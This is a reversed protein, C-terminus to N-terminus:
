TGKLINLCKNLVDENNILIISLRKRARTVIQFLMKTPHYYPNQDYGKTGLKGSENYYFHEDLVAIVNDYEQGIVKHATDNYWSQYRDYPYRQYMSPTFNIAKWGLDQLIKMYESADYANSFYQITINSYKQTPNRKSLDFLNKIFSAIEKNTRIKETLKFPKPSVQNTIRQPIKRNIERSALCQQSDYSFICTANSNKIKRIIAELQGQYLRQAEDVVVLDYNSFNHSNYDKIPAIIWSYDKLLKNHGDNLAGCHFILVNKSNNICEKAIDYTLLTKGTGASGEISIFCPGSRSTLKIIEKKINEQHNTLFYLDDMFSKTSNFPSVLYNSPDFLKHINGIDAAKQETLISVLFSFEVENLNESEDLYFLKNDEVVYTFSLVKKELFSLYYKNKSLQNKIREGTQESKLEINVISTEGFRLLDFEKSIQDIAFGIYFQDFIELEQSCDQLVSVLSALDELENEKIEINYNNLYLKFVSSSLDNHADVLSLLNIPRLISM